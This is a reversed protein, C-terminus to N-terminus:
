KLKNVFRKDLNLSICTKRPNAITYAAFKFVTSFVRFPYCKLKLNKFTTIYNIFIHIGFKHPVSYFYHFQISQTQKNTCELVYNQLHHHHHFLQKTEEELPGDKLLWHSAYTSSQTYFYKCEMKDRRDNIVSDRNDFLVNCSM